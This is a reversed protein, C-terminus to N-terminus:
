EALVAFGRHVVVVVRPHRPLHHVQRMRAAHRNLTFLTDRIAPFPRLPHPLHCQRRPCILGILQEGVRFFRRLKNSVCPNIRQRNGAAGAVAGIFKGSWRSAVNQRHITNFGDVAPNWVRMQNHM